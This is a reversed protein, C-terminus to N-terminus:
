EGDRAIERKLAGTGIQGYKGTYERLANIVANRQEPPVQDILDALKNPNLTAENLVAQIQEQQKSGLVSMAKKFATLKPDIIPPTINAVKEGIGEMDSVDVGRAKRLAVDRRAGGRLANIREIINQGGEIEPRMAHTFSDVQLPIGAKKATGQADNLAKLFAVPNDGGEDAFKGRLASIFDARNQPTIMASFTEDAEKFAPSREKMLNTLGTRAELARDVKQAVESRTDAGSSRIISDLEQRAAQLEGINAEGSIDSSQIPNRNSWGAKVNKNLDEINQGRVLNMLATSEDDSFPIVDEVARDYMPRTTASVEREIPTQTSKGRWDLRKSGDGIIDDFQNIVALANEEDRLNFKGGIGPAVRAKNELTVLEPFEDLGAWSATPKQGEVPNEINRLREAVDSSRDGFLDKLFIGAQGFEDSFNRKFADYAKGTVNGAGSMGFGLLNSLGVDRLKDEAFDEGTTPMAAGQLTNVAGHQALRDRALQLGRLGAKAKAPGVWTLPNAASGVMRAVDFGEPAEYEAERQKVYKDINEGIGLNEGIALRAIANPLAMFPSKDSLYTKGLLQAAGFSPDAIGAGLRSLLNGEKEEIDGENFLSELDESDEVPAADNFLAELNDSM